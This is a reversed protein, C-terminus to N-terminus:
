AREILAIQDALIRNGPDLKRARRLSEIAEERRGRGLLNTANQVLIEVELSGLPPCAPELVRTRKVSRDASVAGRLVEQTLETSVREVFGDADVVVVLPISRVGWVRSLTCSIDLLIPFTVGQRKVERMAAEPGRMDFAIGVAGIAGGRTAYFKQLGGLGGRSEHWPAWMYFIVPQGLLDGFRVATGGPRALLFDPPRNGEGFALKIDGSLLAAMIPMRFSKAFRM